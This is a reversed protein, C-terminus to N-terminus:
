LCMRLASNVDPDMTLGFYAMNKQNEKELANTFRKEYAFNALPIAISCSRFLAKHVGQYELVRVKEQACFPIKKSTTYNERLTWGAAAFAADYRDTIEVEQRATFYSTRSIPM